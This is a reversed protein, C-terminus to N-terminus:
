ALRNAAGYGQPQVSFAANDCSNIGGTPDTNRRQQGQVTTIGDTIAFSFANPNSVYSPPTTSDGNGGFVSLSASGLSITGALLSGPLLM